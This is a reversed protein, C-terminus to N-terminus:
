GKKLLAKKEMEKEFKRRLEESIRKQKAWLTSWTKKFKPVVTTPKVNKKLLLKAIKRLSVSASARPYAAIVPLNRKFAEDVLEDNEITGLVPAVGKAYEIWSDIERMGRPVKNIVTGITRIGMMERLGVVTQRSAFISGVDPTVVFVLGDAIATLIYHEFKVSPPTDVIIYSFYKRLKKMVREFNLVTEIVYREVDRRGPPLFRAGAPLISLQPYLWKRGSKLQCRYIADVLEYKGELVEAFTIDTRPAMKLEITRVHIDGDILLVLDDQLKSLWAGLGMSITSKGVGGKTGMISIVPM